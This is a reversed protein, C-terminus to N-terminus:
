RSWRWKGDGIEVKGSGLMIKTATYLVLDLRVFKALNVSVAVHDINIERWVGIFDFM